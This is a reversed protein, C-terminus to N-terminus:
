AWSTFSRVISFFCSKFHLITSVFYFYKFFNNLPQKKFITFVHVTSSEPGVRSFLTESMFPTSQCTTHLFPSLFSPGRPNPGPSNSGSKHDGPSNTGPTKSGRPTPGRPKPGRHNLGRWSLSGEMRGIELFTGIFAKNM